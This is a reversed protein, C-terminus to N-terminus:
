GAIGIVRDTRIYPRLLNEATYPRPLVTGPLGFEANPANIGSPVSVEYYLRHALLYTAEVVADPIAAWGWKATVKVARRWTCTPFTKGWDVARLMNVPWGAQGDPGIGNAPDTEYDAITWATAYTGDDNDDTAVATIEYTDDIWVQKWGAPSFYRDTAAGSHPGFTRGKCIAEVLRSASTIHESIRQDKDRVTIGFRTVFGDFDIYDTV